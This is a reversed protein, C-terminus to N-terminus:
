QFLQASDGKWAIIVRHHSHIFVKLSCGCQLKFFVSLLSNTTVAYSHCPYASTLVHVHICTWVTPIIGWSPIVFSCRSEIVFSRGHNLQM